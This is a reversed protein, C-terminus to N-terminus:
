TIHSIRVKKYLLSRFLNDRGIYFQMNQRKDASITFIPDKKNNSLFHSVISVIYNKWANYSKRAISKAFYQM